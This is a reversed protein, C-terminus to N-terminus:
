VKRAAGHMIKAVSFTSVNEKRRVTQSFHAPQYRRRIRSILSVGCNERLKRESLFVDDQDEKRSRRAAPQRSNLRCAVFQM